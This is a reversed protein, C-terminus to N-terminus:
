GAEDVRVGAVKSQLNAMCQSMVFAEPRPNMVRSQVTLIHTDRPHAQFAIWNRGAGTKIWIQDGISDHLAIAILPQTV